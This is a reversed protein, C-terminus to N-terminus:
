LWGICSVLVAAEADAEEDSDPDTSYFWSLDDLCARMSEAEPDGAGVAAELDAVQAELDSVQGELDAVQGELELTLADATEIEDRLGAIEDDKDEVQGSAEDLDSRAGMWLTLMVVAGGLCVVAAALLGPVLPSRRPGTPHAPVQPPGFDTPQYGTPPGPQQPAYGAGAPQQPPQPSYAPPGSQPQQQDGPEGFSYHPPPNYSM